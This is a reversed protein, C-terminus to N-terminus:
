RGSGAEVTATEEFEVYGPEGPMPVKMIVLTKDDHAPLGAEFDLVQEIVANTIEKANKGANDMILNQLRAMGFENKEADWAENIGDTNMVVIDGPELQIRARNYVNDGDIGLPMGDLKTGTCRKLSHRYLFLPGHGGNSFELIRTRPDYIYLFITAFKDIHAEGCMIKNITDIIEDPGADRLLQLNASLATKIMVMVLSASVSKGSVDSILVALRGDPLPKFDFYDGGVGKAAKTYGKIQVGNKKYFRGPNMGEQIEQAQRIQEALVSSEIKEQQAADLDAIMQNFTSALLGLEDRSKVHVQTKLSEEGGSSVQRAGAVIKQIPRIFLSALFFAGGMGFLFLLGAVGGLFTLNSAIKEEIIRNTFTLRCVGIIKHGFSDYVPYYYDTLQDKGHPDRYDYSIMDLNYILQQQEQPSMKPLVQGFIERIRKVIGQNYPLWTERAPPVEFDGLDAVAKQANKKRKESRVRPNIYEEQYFLNTPDTYVAAFFIDEVSSIVRYSDAIKLPDNDIVALLANSAMHLLERRALQRQHEKTTEVDRSIFFLSLSGSIVLVLTGILIALKARIGFRIKKDGGDDEKAKGAKQGKEIKNKEEAM